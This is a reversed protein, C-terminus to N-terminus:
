GGGSSPGEPARVYGLIDVIEQYSGLVLMLIALSLAYYIIVHGIRTESIAAVLTIILTWGLLTKALAVAGPTPDSNKKGTTGGSAGTTQAIAPSSM